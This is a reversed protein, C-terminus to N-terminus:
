NYVMFKLLVYPENLPFDSLALPLCGAFFALSALDLLDAELFGAPLFGAPLFGAPLFGAPLFGAALRALFLAAGLTCEDIKKYIKM